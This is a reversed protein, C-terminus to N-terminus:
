QRQFESEAWQVVEEAMDVARQYEQSTVPESMGPYRTESAYASLEVAAEVEPPIQVDGQELDVILEDLDHVYRFTLGQKLIVAKLAKEAAQQAHYCLDEYFAGEPLSASALALDGRARDLWEDPSGPISRGGPM